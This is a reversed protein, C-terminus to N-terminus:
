VALLRVELHALTRHSLYQATINDTPLAAFELRGASTTNLWLLLIDVVVNIVCHLFALALTPGGAVVFTNVSHGVAVLAVTYAAM